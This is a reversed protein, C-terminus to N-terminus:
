KDTIFRLTEIHQGLGVCSELQVIFMILINYVSIKCVLALTIKLFEDILYLLIITDIFGRTVKNGSGIQELSM